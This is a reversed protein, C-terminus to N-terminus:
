WSGRYQPTSSLSVSSSSLHARGFSTQRAALRTSTLLGHDTNSRPDLALGKSSAPVQERAHSRSQLGSRSKRVRWMISLACILYRAEHPPRSLLVPVRLIARRADDGVFKRTSVHCGVYAVRLM